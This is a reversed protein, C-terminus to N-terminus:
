KFLTKLLKVLISPHKLIFKILFPFVLPNKLIKFIVAKPFDMDGYISILHEIKSAKVIQFVKEFDNNSFKELFARILYHIKLEKGIASICPTEYYKKIIRKSFKNCKFCKQICSAAYKAATLLMIIGGGTTAKVQCASDGVLLVNEFAIQNMLGYPILGGQQDIKNQMDLNLKKLYIRFKRAINKLCALGIRYIKNGEPVIWGFLEKWQPNFYMVAENVPFDSEIRIQVAFLNKNNIGFSKAVLSLPGDCGVLIKAKLKRKSTEILVLKQKGDKVYKFSKFREGFFYTINNNQKVKEYFLRDLGIRNIIYPQEDGFLKIYRGSPAIIKALEVRNLILEQPLDVLQSLKQSIIGACQFPLGIEEHEEIVIIKLNTKSLLYCLYNGAISGGVICVDYIIYDRFM